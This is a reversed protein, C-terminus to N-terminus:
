RGTGIGDGEGEMRVRIEAEVPPGAVPQEEAVETVLPALADEPGEVLADQGPRGVELGGGAFRQGPQEALETHGEVGVAQGASGRVETGAWYRNTM